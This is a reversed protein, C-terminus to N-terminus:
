PVSSKSTKFVSIQDLLTCAVFTVHGQEKYEPPDPIIDQLDPARRMTSLRRWLTRWPRPTRQAHKRSRATCKTRTVRSFLHCSEFNGLLNKFPHAIPPVNKEVGFSLSSFRAENPCPWFAAGHGLSARNKLKDNTSSFFTGGITLNENM